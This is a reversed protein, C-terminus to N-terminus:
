TEAFHKSNTDQRGLKHSEKVLNSLTTAYTEETLWFEPIEQPQILFEIDMAPYKVLGPPTTLWLQVM